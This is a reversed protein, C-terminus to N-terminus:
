HIKISNKKKERSRGAKNKKKKIQHAHTSGPLSSKKKWGLNRWFPAKKKRFKKRTEKAFKLNQGRSFFLTSSGEEERFNRVQTVHHLILFIAMFSLFITIVKLVKKEPMKSKIKNHTACDVGTWLVLLELLHFWFKKEQGGKAFLFIDILRLRIYFFFIKSKAEEEEKKKM